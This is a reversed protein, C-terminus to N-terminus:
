NKTAGGARVIADPHANLHSAVQKRPRDIAADGIWGFSYRSGRANSVRHTEIKPLMVAIGSRAASPGIWGRNVIQSECYVGEVFGLALLGAFRLDVNGARWYSIV